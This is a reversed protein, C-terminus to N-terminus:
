RVDVASQEYKAKLRALQMREKEERRAAKEVKIREREAAAVARREAIINSWLQGHHNRSNELVPVDRLNEPRNDDRIGNIHDVVGVPDFGHVLKWIIRHTKYSVGNVPVKRYGGSDCQSADKGAFCRNWAPMGVMPKLLLLGRERDFDYLALIAERPPLLKM